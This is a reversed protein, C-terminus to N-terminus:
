SIKKPFLVKMFHQWLSTNRLEMVEQRLNVVDNQIGKYEKWFKASQVAAYETLHPKIIEDYPVAYIVDDIVQIYRKNDPTDLLKVLESITPWKDPNLPKHAASLFFRADDILIIDGKRKAILNLEGLIPCEDEEGATEGVSWHGDLWFVTKKDGIEMLVTPLVDRSDGLYPKVNKLVRLGDSYQDYFKKSLEITYVAEFYESAWKSTVGALTGTEVFQTAGALKTLELVIKRPIGLDIIGM